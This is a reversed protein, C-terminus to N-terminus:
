HSFGVIVLRTTAIGAIKIEKVSICADNTIFWFIDFFGKM